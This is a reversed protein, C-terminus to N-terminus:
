MNGAAISARRSLLSRRPTPAPQPADEAGDNENADPSRAAMVSGRPARVSSRPNSGPALTSRRRSSMISGRASAPATPTLLQSNSASSALPAAATSNSTASHETVRVSDHSSGGLHLGPRQRRFPFKPPLASETSIEPLLHDLLMTITAERKELNAQAALVAQRAKSNTLNSIDKEAQKRKETQSLANIVNLYDQAADAERDKKSATASGAAASGSAGGSSGGGLGAGGVGGAGGPIL